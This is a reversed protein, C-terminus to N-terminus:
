NYVAVSGSGLTVSTIKGYLDAGAGMSVSTITQGDVIATVSATALVSLRRWGKTNTHAATDTYITTGTQGTLLLLSDAVSGGLM